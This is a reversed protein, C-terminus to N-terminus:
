TDKPFAPRAPLATGGSTGAALARLAARYAQWDPPVAVGHEVCRLIVTDSAALAAMAQAAIPLAAPTTLVQPAPAAFAKGDFTWGEAVDGQADTLAVMQAAVGPAMQEALPLAPWALPGVRLVAGDRVQAYITAM